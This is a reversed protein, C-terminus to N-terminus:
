EGSYDPAEPDVSSSSVAGDPDPYAAPTARIGGSGLWADLEASSRRYTTGDDSGLGHCFDARVLVQQVQGGAHVNLIWVSAASAFCDEQTPSVKPEALVLKVIDRADDGEFSLSASLTPGTDGSFMNFHSCASVRDVDATALDFVTAPRWGADGLAPTRTTCGNPDTGDIVHASGELAQLQAPDDSRVTLWVSGVKVTDTVWGGRESHLPGQQSAFFSAFPEYNSLPEQNDLCAMETRADYFGFFGVADGEPRKAGNCWDNEIFRADPRWAAPVLMTADGYSYVRMGDPVGSEPDGSASIRNGGDGDGDNVVVFGLPVAAVVAAAVLAGATNRRRKRMRDRAGEALGAATPAGEAGHTLAERVRTEFDSM